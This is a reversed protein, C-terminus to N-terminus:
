GHGILGGQRPGLGEVAGRVVALSQVGSLREPQIRTPDLRCDSGVQRGLIRPRERGAQPDGLEPDGSVGDAHAEGRLDGHGVGCSKDAPPHGHM